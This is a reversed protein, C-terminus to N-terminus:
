MTALLPEAAFLVKSIALMAAGALTGIAFGAVTTLVVSRGFGFGFFTNGNTNM